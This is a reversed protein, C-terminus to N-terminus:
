VAGEEEEEGLVDCVVVEAEESAPEAKLKEGGTGDPSTM